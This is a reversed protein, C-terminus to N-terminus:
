YTFFDFQDGTCACAMVIRGALVFAGLCVLQLHFLVVRDDALVYKVFFGFDLLGAVQGYEVPDPPNLSRNRDAWPLPSCHM